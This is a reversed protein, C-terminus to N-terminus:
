NETPPAASASGANRKPAPNSALPSAAPPTAAAPPQLPLKAGSAPYLAAVLGGALLGFIIPGLEWPNHLVLAAYVYYVVLVAAYLIFLLVWVLNARPNIAAWILGLGFVAGAVSRNTGVYLGLSRMGEPVFRDPVVDILFGAILAAGILLLTLSLAARRMERPLM